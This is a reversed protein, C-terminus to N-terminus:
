IGSSQGSRVARVYFNSYVDFSGCYGSGFYVSWALGASPKSSTWIWFQRSRFVSDIFLVGPFNFVALLSRFISPILKFGAKPKMLAMAEELTPLRWDNYGGFNQNNLDLIYKEADAYSMFNMSGSQQWTLGTAHDVVLKKGHRRVIEFQHKIGKGNPNRYRDYYGLKKIRDSVINDLYRERYVQEERSRAILNEEDVTLHRMGACGNEVTKLDADDLLAEDARYNSLKSSLVRAARQGPKDSNQYERMIVPALIDHALRISANQKEQGDTLLYLRKCEVLLPELIERRHSYAQQLETLPCAGATGHPTTHAHLLDLALGSTVVEENWQWLQAMQQQLFEEMAIGASKLQQYLPLTFRPAHSDEQM